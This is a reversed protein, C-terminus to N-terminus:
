MVPLYYISQTSNGRIHIVHIKLGTTVNFGVEWTFHGVVLHQIRCRLSGADNEAVVAVALAAEQGHESLPEGDLKVILDSHQHWLCVSVRQLNDSTSPNQPQVQNKIRM